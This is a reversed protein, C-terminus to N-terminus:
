SRIKLCLRLVTSSFQLFDSKIQTAFAIRRRKPTIHKTLHANAYISGKLWGRRTWGRGGDVEKLMVEEM